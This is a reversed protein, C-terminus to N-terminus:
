AIGEIMFLHFIPYNAYWLLWNLRIIGLINNNEIPLNVVMNGAGVIFQDPTTLIRALVDLFVASFISVIGPGMSFLRYTCRDGNCAFALHYFTPFRVKQLERIRADYM